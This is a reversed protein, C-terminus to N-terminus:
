IYSTRVDYNVISSDNKTLLSLKNLKNLKLNLLENTM